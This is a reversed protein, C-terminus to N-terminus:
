SVEVSTVHPPNAGDTGTITINGNYTGNTGHKTGGNPCFIGTQDYTIGTVTAEVTVDHIGAGFANTITRFVVHGGTPTQAPVEVTCLGAVSVSIVNTGPCVVHIVSATTEMANLTEGATFTFGCENMKVTATGISAPCTDTSGSNQYTITKESTVDTSSTGSVKATGHVENCTFSGADVVFKQNPTAADQTADLQTTGNAWTFSGVTAQSASAVVASMALVATLALGLVKLKRIM